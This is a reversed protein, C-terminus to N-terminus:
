ESVSSKVQDIKGLMGSIFEVEPDLDFDPGPDADYKQDAPASNDSKDQPQMILGPDVGYKQDPASNDAKDQRQM